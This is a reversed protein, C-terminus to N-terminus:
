LGKQRKIIANAHASLGETSAFKVISDAVESLANKDYYLVSTRKLFDYTSLPSYYRASSSTPLTHNPGALYDGLPEPTYEGLFVSGANTISGLLEEYNEATIELHEPAILNSIQAGLYLDPCIIVLGNKDIAAKAVEKTPLEDLQHELEALTKKALDESDTILISVSDTDHEAQALMDAAVYVPNSSKDAIVLVESPGAIMDIDVTGYVLRKATTVYINGPGTIKFVKPITQTGYALAAIAQAGGTKFIKTVGAIKAAALINANVKGDASPPTAMIIEPVGACKAPIANM